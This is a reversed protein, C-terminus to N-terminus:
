MMLGEKNIDIEMLGEKLDQRLDRSYGYILTPIFTAIAIAMGLIQFIVQSTDGIIQREINGHM